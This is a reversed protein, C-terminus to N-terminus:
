RAEDLCRGVETSIGSLGEAGHDQGKGQGAQDGSRDEGEGESEAIVNDRLDDASRAEEDALGDIGLLSRRTVNRESGGEGDHGDDDHSYIQPDGLAHSCEIRESWERRAGQGSLMVATPPRSNRWRGRASM